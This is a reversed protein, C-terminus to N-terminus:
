TVDGSPDRIPNWTYRTTEKERHCLLWQSYEIMTDWMILSRDMWWPIDGKSSLGIVLCSLYTYWICVENIDGGESEQETVRAM